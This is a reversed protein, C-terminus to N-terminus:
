RPSFCHFTIADAFRCGDAPSSIFFRQRLPMALLAAASACFAILPLPPARADAAAAFATADAAFIMFAAADAFIARPLAYPSLRMSLAPPSLTDALPALSFPLM